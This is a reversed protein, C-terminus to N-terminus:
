NGSSGVLLADNIAVSLAQRAASGRQAVSLLIEKMSNLRSLMFSPDSGRLVRMVLERTEEIKSVCSGVGDHATNVDDVARNLVEIVAAPTAKHPAAGVSTAAQDVADRVSGLQSQLQKAMEGLQAVGTAIGSFGAALARAKVQEAEQDIAAAAARATEIGVQITRLERGITDTQTM